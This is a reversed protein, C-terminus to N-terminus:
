AAVRPGESARPRSARSLAVTGQRSEEGYSYNSASQGALADVPDGPLLRPLLFNAAVLCAITALYGAVAVLVHRSRRREVENVSVGLYRISPDYPNNSARTDRHAALRVALGRENTRAATGARDSGGCWPDPTVSVRPASM